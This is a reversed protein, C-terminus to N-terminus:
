AVERHGVDRVQAVPDQRCVTLVHPNTFRLEYSVKSVRLNTFSQGLALSEQYM